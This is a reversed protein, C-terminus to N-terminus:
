KKKKSLDTLPCTLHVGEFIKLIIKAKQSNIFFAVRRIKLMLGVYPGLKFDIGDHLIKPARGCCLGYCLDNGEHNLFYCTACTM